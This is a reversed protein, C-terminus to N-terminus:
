FRARLLVLSGCYSPCLTHFPKSILDHLVRIQAVTCSWTPAVLCRASTVPTSPKISFLTSPYLTGVHMVVDCGVHVWVPPSSCLWVFLCVFLTGVSSQDLMPPPTPTPATGYATLGMPGVARQDLLGYTLCYAMYSCLLFGMLGVSSHSM